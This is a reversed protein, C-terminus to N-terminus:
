EPDIEVLLSVTEVLQSGHEVHEADGGLTLLVVEVPQSAKGPHESTTGPRLL